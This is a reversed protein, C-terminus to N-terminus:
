FGCKSGTRFKSEKINFSIPIIVHLDSDDEIQKSLFDSLVM